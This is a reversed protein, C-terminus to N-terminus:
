SRARCDPHLSRASEVTAIERHLGPRASAATRGSAVDLCIGNEVHPELPQRLELASFEDLFVLLHQLLDFIELRDQRAFRQHPRDDLVLQGLETFCVLVVALRLDHLFLGLDAEFIQDGLFFDDDRDRVGAVDLSVRDRQITGLPAAALALDAHPDLVFVEDFRQKGRRRVIRQQEEGIGALDIPEFYM